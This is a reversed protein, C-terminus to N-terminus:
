YVYGDGKTCPVKARVSDGRGNGYGEGDGFYWFGALPAHESWEVIGAMYWVYMNVVTLRRRHVGL